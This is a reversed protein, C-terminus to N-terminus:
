YLISYMYYAHICKVNSLYTVCSTYFVSQVCKQVDMLKVVKLKSMMLINMVCLSM